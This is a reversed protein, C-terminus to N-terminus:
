KGERLREGIVTSPYKRPRGGLKGIRSFYERGYRARTTKGGKAGVERISPYEHTEPNRIKAM